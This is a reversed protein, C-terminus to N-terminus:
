PVVEATGFLPRSVVPKLGQPFAISQRLKADENGAAASAAV